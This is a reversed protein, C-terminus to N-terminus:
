HSMKLINAVKLLSEYNTNFCVSYTIRLELEKKAKM